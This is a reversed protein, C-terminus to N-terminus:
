FSKQSCVSKRGQNMDKVISGLTCTRRGDQKLFNMIEKSAVASREHVDHFLIIGSDRHTKKMLKKTRLIIRDPSQALWDLTDVNWYAHILNNKAIQQRISPVEIGSGYPLRFFEIDVSLTKEISKTAAGIEKELTLLGVKTLDQHGFTLSGIEMGALQVAKAEDPTALIKGATQFFTAKLNFAKLDELIQPTIKKGPGNNFTLAWVKAPFEHGTINGSETESPKFRKARSKIDTELLHSLHEINKEFIQFEKNAELSKIEEELNEQSYDIKEQVKAEISAALNIMALYALPSKGAFNEVRERFIHIKQIDSKSNKEKLAAILELLESEIEDVQTKVAIISLYAPGRYLDELKQDSISQDFTYLNRHALAYYNYLSVLREDIESGFSKNEEIVLREMAVSAIEREQELTKDGFLRFGGCSTMVLLASFLAWKPM